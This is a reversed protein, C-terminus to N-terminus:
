ILKFIKETIFNLQSVSLGPYIPISVEKQYFEFSNKFNNTKLKYKKKYYPQMYLPIYHVQLKIGERLMKKFFHTKSIKLKKFNIQLPYLHYSHYINKLEKPIAINQCNRFIENYKKAILRRQLVFTNLKKLQSIGLACNIDSLRFNFGPKHMDYKWLEKSLSKIMSNNRLIKLKRDWKPENCLISGGEGSTFAKVPHFSQTVFDAFKNAYGIQNDLKSGMAHCGDNILIFNYKNALYRLSKWDCPHGAYDVGILAKVKKKTKKLFNEVKNPDITTTKKEIDIFKTEANCLEICNSTALFSIPTTLITDGKRWNLLKGVLYLASTGNSVVTCFKSKFKKSLDSEFKEVFPGQTIMPSRLAKSVLQIDKNNINHSGYNIIKKM